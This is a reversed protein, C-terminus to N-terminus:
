AEGLRVVARPRAQQLLPWPITGGPPPELLLLWCGEQLRNRLARIGDEEESTVSAAAAFSGMWGSVAGLLGGILPEGLPGAVAFTHLETIFTFTLGALVGFPILWRAMGRQRRRRPAAPDLREVTAPDTEGEGIAVLQALPPRVEALRERLQGLRQRDDMVVVVNLAM